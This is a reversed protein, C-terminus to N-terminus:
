VLEQHEQISVKIEQDKKLTEKVFPDESYAKWKSTKKDFNNVGYSM